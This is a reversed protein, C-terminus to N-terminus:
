ILLVRQLPKLDFELFSNLVDRFIRLYQITAESGPVHDQLAKLVRDQIMKEFSDYNMRDMPFIDSHTLGHVSKHVNKVLKELHEISVVYTGMPLKINPKLLRNRSKGGIHIPDQITKIGIENALSSEYVMASLCKPDGDTSMGVM